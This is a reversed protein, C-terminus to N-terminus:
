NRFTHQLDSYFSKIDTFDFKDLPDHKSYKEIGSRVEEYDGCINLNVYGSDYLRKIQPLLEKARLDILNNMIFGALTGSCGKAEPINEQMFDLYRSYIGIVEDRREPEEMAIFSLADSM